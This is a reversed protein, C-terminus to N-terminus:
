ARVKHVYHDQVRINPVVRINHEGRINHEVRILICYAERIKNEVRNKPLFRINHEGRINPVM